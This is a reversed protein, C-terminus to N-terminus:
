YVVVFNDFYFAVVCLVYSCSVVFVVFVVVVVVFVFVFVSASFSTM